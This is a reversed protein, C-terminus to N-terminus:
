MAVQSQADRGQIFRVIADLRSAVQPPLENRLQNGIQSRQPEPIAMFLNVLRTLQDKNLFEMPDADADQLDAQDQVTEPGFAEDLFGLDDAIGVLESIFAGAPGSGEALPAIQQRFGDTPQEQMPPQMPSLEPPLEAM